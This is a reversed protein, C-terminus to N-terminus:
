PRRIKDGHIVVFFFFFFFAVFLELFFFLVFFIDVVPFCFRSVDEAFEVTGADAQGFEAGRAARVFVHGVDGVLVVEIASFQAVQNAFPAFQAQVFM